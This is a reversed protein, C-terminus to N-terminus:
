AAFSAGEGVGYLSARLIVDRAWRRHTSPECMRGDRLFVAPADDALIAQAAEHETPTVRYCSEIVAVQM